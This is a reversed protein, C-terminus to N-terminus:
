AAKKVLRLKSRKGKKAKKAKIVSEEFIHLYKFFADSKHGTIAKTIVMDRAEGVLNTM